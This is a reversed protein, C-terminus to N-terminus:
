KDQEMRLRVSQEVLVRATSPLELTGFHKYYIKKASEPTYYGLKQAVAKPLLNSKNEFLHKAALSVNGKTEPLICYITESIAREYEFQEITARNGRGLKKLGFAINADERRLIKELASVIYEYAQPNFQDKARELELLFCYLLLETTRPNDLGKRKPHRNASIEKIM